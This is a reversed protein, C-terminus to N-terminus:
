PARKRKKNTGGKTEGAEGVEEAARIREEFEKVLFYEKLPKYRASAKGREKEWGEVVFRAMVRADVSMEGEVVDDVCGALARNLIRKIPTWEEGSFRTQFGLMLAVCKRLDKSQMERFEEEPGEASGLWTNAKGVKPHHKIYESRLWCEGFDGVKVAPYGRAGSMLFINEDSLDGHVVPDWGEKCGETNVTEQISPIGYALYCLAAVLSCLIHWAFAAPFMEEDMSNYTGGEKDYKDNKGRRGLVFARLTGFDCLEMYTVGEHTTPNYYAAPVSVINAHSLSGMTQLRFLNKPDPATRKSIVKKSDSNRTMIAVGTNSCGPINPLPVLLTYQDSLPILSITFPPYSENLSSPSSSSFPNFQPPLAGKRPNPAPM